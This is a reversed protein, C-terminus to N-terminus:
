EASKKSGAKMSLSALRMRMYKNIFDRKTIKTWSGEVQEFTAVESKGSNNINVYLLKVEGQVLLLAIMCEQKKKAKWLEKDDHKIAVIKCEERPTYEKCTVGDNNLVRVNVKDDNPSMLNLSYEEEKVQGGVQENIIEIGEEADGGSCCRLCRPWGASCLKIAALIPLLIYLRMNANRRPLNFPSPMESFIALIFSLPTCLAIHQRHCLDQAYLVRNYPIISSKWTWFHGCYKVLTLVVGAHLAM